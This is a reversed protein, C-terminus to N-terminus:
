KNNTTYIYSYIVSLLEIQRTTLQQHALNEANIDSILDTVSATGNDVRNQTAAKIKGRLTVIKRDSEMLSKIRKVNSQESILNLNTNFLFSERQIDILNRNNNILSRNNKLRYLDGINWSISAGVLYFGKFDNDLMDLAPRGYGTSAYLGINPRTNTNLLKEQATLLTQQADFSELEPRKIESNLQQITSPTILVTEDTIEAGILMSLMQKYATWSARIDIERQQVQLLEVELEELDTSNALGNNILSNIHQINNNFEEQLLQNQKLHEAQLLCSFYLQNIRSNLQYLETTLQAKNLNTESQILQKNASTRGGDWVNQTIEAKVMYQDKSIEPIVFNPFIDTISELPLETVDSQYSAKASLNIQPLWNKQANSINYQEARELLEYRKIDPYNDHALTYCEEITLASISLTNLLLTIFIFALKNM